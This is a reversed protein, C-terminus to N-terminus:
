GSRELEAIKAVRRLHREEGSATALFREVILLAANADVVRAGLTLVNANQHERANRAAADDHCVAARVGKVKNAAICSGIGMADIMVGFDCQGSAVLRSVAAAFDPYDVPAASAPGVDRVHHSTGLTKKLAEKLAFGGHDSGIAIALRGGTEGSVIRVERTAAAELAWPTVHAAASVKLEGGRPVGFVDEATIFERAPV